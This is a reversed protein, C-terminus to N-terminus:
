LSIIQFWVKYTQKFSVNKAVWALLNSAKYPKIMYALNLHLSVMKANM